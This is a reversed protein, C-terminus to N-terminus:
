SNDTEKKKWKRRASVGALGALGIGLLLVTTPEPVVDPAPEPSGDGPTNVFWESGGGEFAQVHMGIRLQAPIAAALVVDQFTIGSLYDFEIGLTEGASVGHAMVGGPGGDSDASYITDFTVGGPLDSPTAGESFSVDPESDDIFVTSPTHDFLPVLDEFYVDTITALASGDHWFTFLASTGTDTVDVKLQSGGVADDNNLPNTNASDFGLTFAKTTTQTALLVVIAVVAIKSLIGFKFKKM